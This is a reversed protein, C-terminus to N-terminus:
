FILFTEFASNTTQTMAESNKSFFNQNHDDKETLAKIMLDKLSKDLIDILEHKNDITYDSIRNRLDGYTVEEQVPNPHTADKTLIAERTYHASVCPISGLHKGAQRLMKPRANNFAMTTDIDTETTTHTSPPTIKSPKVKEESLQNSSKRKQNTPTTNTKNLIAQEIYSNVSHNPNANTLSNPNTKSM